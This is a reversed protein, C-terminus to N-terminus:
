RVSRPRWYPVGIGEAALLAYGDVELGIHVDDVDCDTITGMIKVDCALEVMVIAFPLESSFPAAGMQRIVTYTYVTGTAEQEVFEPTGGCVTCLARPYHQWHGCDTCRQVLLRQEAWAEFYERSYQDTIIPVPRNWETVTSVDADTSM